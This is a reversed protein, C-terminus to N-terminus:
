RINNKSIDSFYTGTLINWKKCRRIICYVTIFVLYVNFALVYFFPSRHLKRVNDEATTLRV